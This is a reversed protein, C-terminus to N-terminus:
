KGSYNVKKLADKIKELNSPANWEITVPKDEPDGEV